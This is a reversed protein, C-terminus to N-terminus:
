FLSNTWTYLSDFITTYEDIVIVFVFLAFGANLYYLFRGFIRICHAGRPLIVNHDTTIQLAFNHNPNNSCRNSRQHVGQINQKM